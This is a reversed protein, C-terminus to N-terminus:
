STVGGDESKGHKVWTQVGPECIAGRVNPTRVGLFLLNGRLLPTRERMRRPFDLCIPSFKSRTNVPNSWSGPSVRHIAPRNWPPVCTVFHWARKTQVYDNRALFFTASEARRSRGTAGFLYVM